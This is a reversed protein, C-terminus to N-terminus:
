IYIKTKSKCFYYNYKCCVFLKVYFMNNLLNHFIEKM